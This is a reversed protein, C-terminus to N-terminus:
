RTLYMVSVGECKPHEVLDMEGFVPISKYIYGGVATIVKGGHDTTDNLLIVAKNAM